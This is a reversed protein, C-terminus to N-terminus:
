EVEMVRKEFCSKCRVVCLVRRILWVLPEWASRGCACRASFGSM